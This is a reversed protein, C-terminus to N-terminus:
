GSLPIEAILRNNPRFVLRLIHTDEAIGPEVDNRDKWTTNGKGLILITDQQSLRNNKDADFWSIYNKVYTGGGEGPVYRLMVDGTIPHRVRMNYIDNLTGTIPNDDDDHVTMGNQNVLRYIIEAGAVAPDASSIRILYNNGSKEVEAIVNPTGKGTPVFSQAWLYLVAALVVTIAVMLIVAIVPSVAEEDMWIKKFQRM